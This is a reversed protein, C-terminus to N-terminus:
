RHAFKEGRDSAEPGASLVEVIVVPNVIHERRRCEFGASAM